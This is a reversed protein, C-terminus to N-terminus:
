RVNQSAILKKEIEEPGLQKITQSTDVCVRVLSYSPLNRKIICKAGVICKEGIVVQDFVTAGIGVFCQEGITVAGAILSEAGIFCHDGINCLHSIYAGTKIFTDNGIVSNFEIIAGEYVLINDGLVVNDQIIASPAIVNACRYGSNKVKEYVNKRDSNLRNWQISVFVYDDSKSIFNPLDDLSVLPLGNYTSRGQLFIKDVSFCVVKFLNYRKIINYVMDAATHAGIIAIKKMDLQKCFKIIM